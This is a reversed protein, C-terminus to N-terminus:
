APTSLSTHKREGSGRSEKWPHPLVLSRPLIQGLALPQLGGEPHQM